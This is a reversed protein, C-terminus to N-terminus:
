TTEVSNTKALSANVGLICLNEKNNLQSTYADKEPCLRISYSTNAPMFIDLLIEIIKRKPALPLLDSIASQPAGVKVLAVKEDIKGKLIANIGLKMRNLRPAKTKIETKQNNLHISVKYGMIMSIAQATQSYSNRIENIYPITQAFLIATQSDMQKIVPWFRGFVEVFSRHKAPRYYELETRSINIKTRDLEAEYLSFFKRILVEEKNQKRITEIVNAKNYNKVGESSHFLTEPLNDYLSLRNTKIVLMDNNNGEYDRKLGVSVIEKDTESTTGGNRLLLVAEEKLGNDILMAAILDSRFNSHLTNINEIEIQDIM